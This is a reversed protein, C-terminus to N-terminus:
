RRNFIEQAQSTKIQDMVTHDIFQNSIAHSHYKFDTEGLFSYMDAIQNNWLSYPIFYAGNSNLTVTFDDGILQKFRERNKESVNIEM